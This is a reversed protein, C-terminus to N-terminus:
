ILSVNNASDFYKEVAGPNDARQSGKKFYYTATISNVLNTNATVKKGSISYGASLGEVKSQANTGADKGNSVKYKLTTTDIENANTAMGNTLSNDGRGSITAYKNDLAKRGLIANKVGSISAAMNAAENFFCVKITDYLM